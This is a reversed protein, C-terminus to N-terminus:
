FNEPPLIPFDLNPKKRHRKFLNMLNQPHLTKKVDKRRETFHSSPLRNFKM